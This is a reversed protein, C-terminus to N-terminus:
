TQVSGVASVRRIDQTVFIINHHVRIKGNLSSYKLFMNEIKM